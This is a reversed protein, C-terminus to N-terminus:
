PFKNIYNITQNLIYTNVDKKYKKNGYLLTNIIKNPTFSLFDVNLKQSVNSMLTNRIQTYDHCSLLFHETNEIGNFCNCMPDHTDRFKHNFKYYNLPNLDLRLQTLQRLGNKDIVDYIEKKKPKIKGLFHSKLKFSDYTRMVPTSDNNWSDVCSPFFSAKHKSTRPNFSRIPEDRHYHLHLFDKLYAPTQNNVIKNFLTM